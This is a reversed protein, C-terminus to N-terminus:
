RWAFLMGSRRVDVAYGLDALRQLIEPERRRGDPASSDYELAIRDVCEWVDFPTEMLLDYEAGEIDIKVGDAHGGVFDLADALTIVNVDYYQSVDGRSLAREHDLSSQGTSGKVEFLRLQDRHPGVAAQAVRSPVNIRLMECTLPHPEICVVTARPAFLVVWKTFTGKHAGIDLISWDDTPAFRPHAYEQNIFIENIIRVDMPGVNMRIEGARRLAYTVEDQSGTQSAFRNRYATWWNRYVLPMRVATVIKHGVVGMKLLRSQVTVTAKGTELSTAM